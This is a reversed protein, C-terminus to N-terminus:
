DTKKPLNVKLKKGHKSLTSHDPVPLVIKLLAFLSRMFGEAQRNTLHFVEKLILVIEIAKDSYYYQGGRQKEGTYLWNQEFGDSM